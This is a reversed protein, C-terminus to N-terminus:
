VSSGPGKGLGFDPLGSWVEFGAFEFGAQEPTAARAPTQGARPERTELVYHPLPLLGPFIYPLCGRFPTALTYRPVFGASEPM